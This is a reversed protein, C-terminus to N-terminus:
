IVSTRNVSSDRVEPASTEVQFIHSKLSCRSSLMSVEALIKTMITDVMFQAPETTLAMTSCFNYFETPLQELIFMAKFLEPLTLGTAAIQNFLNTLRNIDENATQPRVTVCQAQHFMHFQGALGRSTLLMTMRDWITKSVSICVAPDAYDYSVNHVLADTLTNAIIGCVRKDVVKWKEQDGPTTNAFTCTSDIFGWVSLSQLVSQMHVSWIPFNTPGKLIPVRAIITNNPKFDTAVDLATPQAAM